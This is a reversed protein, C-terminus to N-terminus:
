HNNGKVRKKTKSWFLMCKITYKLIAIPSVHFFCQREQILVLFFYKLTNSNPSQFFSTCLNKKAKLIFANFLIINFLKKNTNLYHLNDLQRIWFIFKNFSCNRTVDIRLFNLDIKFIPELTMLLQIGVKHSISQQISTQLTSVQNAHIRYHLLVEPINALRGVSSIRAWLDYDEAPENEINYKLQNEKFFSNRLMVTPHGMACYTLLAVKIEDHTSPLEIIKKGGIYEYWSGCVAIDTQQELFAVQKELRDITSIDDGDMRAIYKGKAVELGMNLSTTYGTNQPKVFLKIRSDKYSQVISVSADTSADDIIVFEFSTYTQTLISDIAEKLYKATNYVPMLVTVLPPKM